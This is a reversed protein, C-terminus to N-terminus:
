AAHGQLGCYDPQLATQHHGRKPATCGSPCHDHMCAWALARWAQLSVRLFGINGQPNCRVACFIIVDMERGQLRGRCMQVAALSKPMPVGTCVQFGDVTSVELQMQVLGAARAKVLHKLRGQLEEVQGAPCHPELFRVM